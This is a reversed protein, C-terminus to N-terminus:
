GLPLGNVASGHTPLGGLLAAVPAVPGEVPKPRAAKGTSFGPQAQALAEAPNPLARPLDKAPLTRTVSKLAQGADPVAPAADAAGAGTAAFAAGLAAVGLTKAASQKM